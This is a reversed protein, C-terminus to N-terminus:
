FYTRVGVYTNNKSGHRLDTQEGLISLNDTLKLEGGLKVKTDDFDYVQTYLRFRDAISYGLGVGFEGQMSGLSVDAADFQKGFQLDLKNSDGLDYGGLYFFTDDQPRFTVGLNSRWDGGNVSHTVDANIEATELVGLMRNAKESAQRANHLTAKLDEETQPDSAVKELLKSAEEIRASTKALNEVMLAVNQGTHGKDVEGIINAVSDATANLRVTVESLQKAMLNIQQQNDVATDAMVKTFTNMNASIDKMNLFGERMSQQVEPDGFVNELADAINEVKKLVDGSSSMFTDFGGGPTGKVRDGEELFVSVSRVPPQIDVFKEGMIGDSGITFTAEAPIQVNDNIEATVEIGDNGVALGKVTGVQVGAYRVMNGAMLGSVQPYDILIDYKDSGFSFTGLFTIMAALIAAGGLTIAGVKVESSSM